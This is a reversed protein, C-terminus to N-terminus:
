GEYVIKGGVITMKVKLNEDLVVIDALNGTKLEGMDNMGLLSAPNKTMLSVVKEIPKDLFRSINKLGDIMKLTSGARADGVKLRADGNKVVVENVGLMYDGDPLGAAMICDTVCIMKDLGKNHEIFKLTSPTLHLGDCITEVYIDSILAAGAIGIEHQHIPRMANMLHTASTVGLEIARMGQEYTANSHGMAVVIGMDVLDKIMSTNDSHEPAITIYKVRGRAKRQYEQALKLNTDLILDEPMAGKYIPSLFPGELHIGLVRAGESGRDMITNFQDISWETQEKTDTLVSGLFSTVGQSAFFSSIEDIDDATSANIDHGAGGHTHIDIFGPLIKYGSFDLFDGGSINKSIEVIRDDEIKIDKEVFDNGQLVKANKILMGEGSFKKVQMIM